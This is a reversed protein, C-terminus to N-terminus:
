RGRVFINATLRGEHPNASLPMDPPIIGSHLLSGQYIIMRDPVAEIAGIQEFYEDTGQIYGSDPSLKAADAKAARLMDKHLLEKNDLEQSEAKYTRVLSATAGERAEM